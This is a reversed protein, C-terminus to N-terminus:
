RPWCYKENQLEWRIIEFSQPDGINEPVFELTPNGDAEDFSWGSPAAVTLYATRGTLIECPDPAAILSVKPVTVTITATAQYILGDSGVVTVLM